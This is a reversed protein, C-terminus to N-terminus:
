PVLIIGLISKTCNSSLAISPKRRAIYIFLDFSLILLHVFSHILLDYLFLYILLLM